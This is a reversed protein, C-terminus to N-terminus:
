DGALAQQCLRRPRGQSGGGAAGTEARAPSAAACRTSLAGPRPCRPGPFHQLSPPGNLQGGEASATAPFPPVNLQGGEASATAPSHHTDSSVHLSPIICLCCHFICHASGQSIRTSATGASACSARPPSSPCSCGSTHRWTACSGVTATHPSVQLQPAADSTALSDAGHSTRDSVPLQATPLPSHQTHAAAWVTATHPSVQSQAAPSKSALTDAGQVTVEDTPWHLIPLPSHQTHAVLQLSTRLATDCLSM